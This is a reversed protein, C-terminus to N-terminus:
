NIHLPFNFKGEAPVSIIITDFGPGPALGGATNPCRELPSVNRGQLLGVIRGM